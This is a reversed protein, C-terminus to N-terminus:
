ETFRRRVGVFRPNGGFNLFGAAANAGVSTPRRLVFVRSSVFVRLRRGVSQLVNALCLGLERLRKALAATFGIKCHHIPKGASM